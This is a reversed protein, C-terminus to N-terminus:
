DETLHELDAATPKIRIQWAICASLDIIASDYFVAM